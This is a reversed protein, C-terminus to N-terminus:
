NDCGFETLIVNEVRRDRCAGTFFVSEGKRVRELVELQEPSLVLKQKITFEANTLTNKGSANKGASKNEEKQGPLSLSRFAGTQPDQMLKPKKRSAELPDWPFV